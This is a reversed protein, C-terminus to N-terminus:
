ISHRNSEDWNEQISKYEAELEKFKSEYSDAFHDALAANGSSALVVHLVIYNPGSYSCGIVQIETIVLRALYKTPAGKEFYVAGCPLKERDRSHKLVDKFCKGFRITHFENENSFSFLLDIAKLYDTYLITYKGNYDEGHVVPPEGNEGVEWNKPDHFPDGYPSSFKDIVFFCLVLIFVTGVLALLSWGIIKLLNNAM